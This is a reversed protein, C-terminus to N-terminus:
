SRSRFLRSAEGAGTACIPRPSSWHPLVSASGGRRRRWGVTEGPDGRGLSGDAERRCAGPLWRTCSAADTRGGSVSPDNIDQGDLMFNNSRLRGGNASFSLGNAFGTQGSSLQSVGPTSLLVNFVNRNTAIPLESLRKSDFRTSVEATTTNLVSANETVNVVETVQGPKLTLDLDAVQNVVLTIGSQVLKSFNAAEVTVEYSGLPVNVLKFRGEGDTTATRSFGTDVNRATVTAGAISAAREDNVTGSISGTSSQALVGTFCVAVLVSAICASLYKRM